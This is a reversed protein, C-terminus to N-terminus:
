ECIFGIKGIRHEFPDLREGGGLRGHIGRIPTDCHYEWPNGGQAPDLDVIGSIRDHGADFTVVGWDALGQFTNFGEEEELTYDRTPSPPIPGVTHYEGTDDSKCRIGVSALEDGPHGPTRHSIPTVFTMIGDVYDDAGQNCELKFPEGGWDGQATGFYRVPPSWEMIEVPETSNVSSNKNENPNPPLPPTVTINTPDEGNGSFVIILIIATIVMALVVGIGVYLKIRSKKPEPKREGYYQGEM